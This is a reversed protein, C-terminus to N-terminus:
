GVVWDDFREPATQRGQVDVVEWNGVDPERLDIPEKGLDARLSGVERRRGAKVRGLFPSAEVFADGLEQSGEALRVEEDELIEM